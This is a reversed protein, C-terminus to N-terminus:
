ALIVGKMPQQFRAVVVFFSGVLLLSGSFILAHDYGNYRSILLGTIPAGILTGFGYIGLTMGVYSGIQNPSPAIQALTTPFLALINGSTFGFLVAFVIIAATSTMRIWCFVCTASLLGNICLLNLHGTYQALVGSAIRGAMSASNLIVVLYLSLDDNVGYFRAFTSIYFFPTNPGVFIMFVGIVQITYAPDKFASLLLYSGTRPPLRPVVTVMAVLCLALIM